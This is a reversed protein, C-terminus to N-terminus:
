CNIYFIPNSSGFPLYHKVSKGIYKNRINDEALEGMFEWRGEKKVKTIADQMNRTKYHLTCAPFWSKIVFTEKVEGRYVSFAYDANERRIGVRWIGRTAEYLEEETINEHYLRNIRILIVNETIKIKDM